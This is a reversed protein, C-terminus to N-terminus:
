RQYGRLAHELAAAQRSTLMDIRREPSLQLRSVIRLAKVRGVRPLCLLLDILRMSQCYEHELAQHVTLRGARLDQKVLARGCRIENARELAAMSQEPAAM